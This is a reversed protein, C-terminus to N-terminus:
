KCLNNNKWLKIKNDLGQTILCDGFKIHKFKKISCVWHNHGPFYKIIKGEKLDILIVRKNKTGIFLYNKDFLCIGLLSEKNLNIKNLLIGSHFNFIKIFGEECSFILKVINNDNCIVISRHHTSIEDSYTFYLSNNDYNYSKVSTRNGTIIYYQNKQNDFYIDIFLTYNSSDNIKKITNGKFDIVIINYLFCNCTVIYNVNENVLFCASLLIGVKYLNNINYLCDWNKIDWIKINNDGSSLSLIIDKKNIIDYSHRFNDIYDKHANKIETIIEMVNLNYAIISKKLTSYILYLIDSKSKFSIFINDLSCGYANTSINDLIEMNNPNNSNEKKEDNLSIKIDEEM